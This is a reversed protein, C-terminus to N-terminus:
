FRVVLQSILFVRSVYSLRVGYAIRIRHTHSAHAQTDPAIITWGFEDIMQAIDKFLQRDAPKARTVRTEDTFTEKEGFNCRPFYILELGNGDVSSKIKKTQLMKELVHEGGVKVIAEERLIGPRCAPCPAVVVLGCCAFDLPSYEVCM